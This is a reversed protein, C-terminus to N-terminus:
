EQQATRRAGTCRSGLAAGIVALPLGFVPFFGLCTFQSGALYAGVRAPDGDIAYRRLGELLCFAYTLPLIAIVTWVAAQLGSRFSRGVRWAAFAPVYFVAGPAVPLVLALLIVALGDAHIALLLWATFAVAALHPALRNTGLWRPAALAVWPCCALVAAFYAAAAPPLQEAAIPERRLFIVTLAISAAV